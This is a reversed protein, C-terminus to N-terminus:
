KLSDKLRLYIEKKRNLSIPCNNYLLDLIKLVQIRGRWQCHWATTFFLKTHETKGILSDILEQCDKATSEFYTTFNISVDTSCDKSVVISGDGDLLGLVYAPLYEEPILDYKLHNSKYTKQPIIGFKSLDNFIQEDSFELSYCGRGRNDEGIKCDLCLEEKFFELIHM